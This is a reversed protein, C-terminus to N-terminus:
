IVEIADIKGYRNYFPRIRDGISVSDYISKSVKLVETGKGLIKDDEFMAHIQCYEIEKGDKATFRGTRLGIVDYEMKKVGKQPKGKDAQSM